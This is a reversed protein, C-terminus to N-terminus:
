CDSGYDCISVKGAASKKLSGPLGFAKLSKATILALRNPDGPKDKNCALYFPLWVTIPDVIEFTVM